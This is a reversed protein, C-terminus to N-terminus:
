PLHRLKRYLRGCSKYLKQPLMRQAILKVHTRVRMDNLHSIENNLRACENSLHDYEAQINTLELLSSDLRSAIHQNEGYINYKHCVNNFTYCYHRLNSLELSVFKDSLVIGPYYGENQVIYPYIREIAHLLTGDVAIPEPPFDDYKWGYDFILKMASTRYWFINGYSTVPYKNISIPVNLGINDALIKTNEFNDAWETGILDSYCGHNPETPSLM